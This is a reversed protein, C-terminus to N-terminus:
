TVRHVELTYDTTACEQHGPGSLKPCAPLFFGAASNGEVGSGKFTMTQGRRIHALRAPADKLVADRLRILNIGNPPPCAAWKVPAVRAYLQLGPGGISVQSTATTNKRGCHWKPQAPTTGDCPGLEGGCQTPVHSSWKYTRRM